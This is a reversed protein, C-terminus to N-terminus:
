TPPLFRARQALSIDATPFLDEKRLELWTSPLPAEPEFGVGRHLRMWNEDWEWRRWSRVQPILEEVNVDCSDNLDFDLKVLSTGDVIGKIAEPFGFAIYSRTNPVRKCQGLLRVVVHEDNWCAELARQWAADSKVLEFVERTKDPISDCQLTLTFAGHPMGMDQLALAEMLWPALCRSIRSGSLNDLRSVDAADSIGHIVQCLSASRSPFINRWLSVRREIRLRRNEQCFPILGQGHCEPWAIAVRNEHLIIKRIYLRISSPLRELFQIAISAASLRYQQEEWYGNYDLWSAEINERAPIAAALEAITEETPITWPNCWTSISKIAQTTDGHCRKDLTDHLAPHAAIYELAAVIFRRGESPIVQGTRWGGSFAQLLDVLSVLHPFGVKLHEYITEDLKSTLWIATSKHTILADLLPTFQGLSPSILSESSCSFHLTNLKFALGRTEDALVRCTLQLNLDLPKKCFASQRTTDYDFVLGNGAVFYHSYICDRLERPLELLPSRSAMSLSSSILYSKQSPFFHLSRKRIKFIM